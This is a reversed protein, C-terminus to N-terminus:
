AGTPYAWLSVPVTCPKAATPPGTSSHRHTTSSLQSGYRESLMAVYGDKIGFYNNYLLYEDDSLDPLSKLELQQDIDYFEVATGTHQFPEMVVECTYRPVYVRIGEPLGRLVVELANRASNVCVGEDHPFEKYEPLELEFYGGIPRM